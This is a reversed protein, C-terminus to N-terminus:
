MPIWGQAWFRPPSGINNQKYFDAQVQPLRPVDVILVRAIIVAAAVALVWSFYKQGASSEQQDTWRSVALGLLIFFWGLTYPMVFVGDVQALVLSACLSLWIGADLQTAAEGKLTNFGFWLGRLTLAIAAITAPFGWEAWWQLVVQHPHASTGGWISSYHMPGVGLWPHNIALDWARLWIVERGSLGARMGKDVVPDVGLAQPLLYFLFVFLFLGTAATIMQLKILSKLKRVACFYLVHSLVLGLWVGRGGLAWVICWHVVLAALVIVSLKYRKLASFCLAQAALVPILLLQFQGFFRPNDFGTFMLYPDVERIGTVFAMAYNVLFLYGLVVGICVMIALVTQEFWSERALAAVVVVLLFLAAWMGWEIFAWLPFASLAASTAGLLFVLLLASYVKPSFRYMPIFFVSVSVIFLLFLQAIRQQNLWEYKLSLLEVASLSFIFIALVVFVATVRPKTAVM